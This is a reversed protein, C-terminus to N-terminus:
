PRAPGRPDGGRDHRRGCQHRRRPDPDAPRSVLARALAVRQRQGGSLSLGREGVTTDYGRPLDDIFEHAQAARAAAEIEADTADPGATRSTPACRPPSCSARRSSWASRGACRPLRSRACTTATSWSRAAPRTTSARSWCRRPRPAAAAPASSRSGSGRRRHAPRPRGARSRRRRLRLAVDRFAIEGRSSPCSSPTPRTPSPRGCTSCSSSGSSAPGPRSASPSCAPSSGPRAVDAPRRVDLLGPVHRAHHRAAPGALRRARPRRGARAVPDGAASASLAGAAPGGADARRVAHRGRRGDARARPAGPRVGQGRARRQRGRRRDARRRGRAAARGLDGPLGALADPLVGAAAPARRRPQGAGAVAVARVDGRPLAPAAARQREHDAPLQAAGAGPGLRLQRARGAPRHADPGPQRLGDDAPPRAHRQAPRVAGVARGPRRPLAPHLAFGFAVPPSCCWSWGALGLPRRDPRPDGRRRHAARGAPGAAPLTSGAVAAAFSLLVDRRHLMVYGVLRRLWGPQEAAGPPDSGPRCRTRVPDAVPAAVAESSSTSSM